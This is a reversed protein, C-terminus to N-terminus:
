REGSESFEESEALEEASHMTGALTVPTFPTAPWLPAAMAEIAHRTSTAIAAPFHNAANNFAPNSQKNAICAAPITDM